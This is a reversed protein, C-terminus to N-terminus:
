GANNNLTKKKIKNNKPTIQEDEIM